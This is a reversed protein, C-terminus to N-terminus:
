KKLIGAKAMIKELETRKKNLFKIMENPPLYMPFTYRDLLFKKIEPDNAAVEFAKVLKDVADKPMKAPGIIAGFSEYDIDYGIEKLTPVHQYPPEPRRDGFVALFYINGAEVQPRAAPFAMISLDAHGGAVQAVSFGGAGAQPIINFKLGTGEVFTMAAVWWSQGVAGSAISVEGPNAKAFSLVEQITKFPRKTKASSVVIPHSTYFSGLITFGEHDYPLLGQLKNTILTAMGLGITYGDPKAAYIERYGISSGAGPKNVVVIPQGLVASAKQCLPRWIIDADGGAELPCISIIPKVPYHEAAQSLPQFGVMGMMFLIAGTKLMIKKM